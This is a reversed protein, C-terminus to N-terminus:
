FNAPTPRMFIFEYGYRGTVPDQTRRSGVLKWGEIGRLRMRSSIEGDPIRDVAYDYSQASVGAQTNGYLMMGTVTDTLQHLRFLSFLGALLLLGLVAQLLIRWLPSPQSEPHTDQPSDPVTIKQPSHTIKAAPEVVPASPMEPQPPEQEQEPEDDGYNMTSAADGWSDMFNFDDSLDDDQTSDTDHEPEHIGLLGDTTDHNTFDAIEQALRDEATVPPTDPNPTKELNVPPTNEQTPQIEPDPETELDSEIGTDLTDFDSAYESEIGTDHETGLTDLESDYESDHTDLTDLESAYESDHTDHTGLTDLESDYETDHTDHTDLTDLESDYETDHTDHTDLTDFESTIGTDHTDLTDLESAYESEIGTDHETNLTDHESEPETETTSPFDPLFPQDFDDGEEQEYNDDFDPTQIPEPIPMEDFPSIDEEFNQRAQNQATEIPSESIAQSIDAILKDEASQPSSNPDNQPNLLNEPLRYPESPDLSDLTLPNGTMAEAINAMLKDEATKTTEPMTVTVPAALTEPGFDEPAYEDSPTQPIESSIQPLDADVNVVVDAVPPFNPTNEPEETSEQVDDHIETIDAFDDYVDEPDPSIVPIDPFTNEEPNDSSEAVEQADIVPIDPFEDDIEQDSESVIEVPIDGSPEEDPPVSDIIPEPVEQSEPAAEPEPAPQPIEPAAEPEPIPQPIEPAPQPESAPTETIAALGLVDHETNEPKPTFATDDTKRMRRRATKGSPKKAPESTDSPRAAGFEASSEEAAKSESEPHRVSFVNEAKLSDAIRREFDEMFSDVRQGISLPKETKRAATRSRMARPKVPKRAPESDGSNKQRTSDSLNGELIERLKEEATKERM